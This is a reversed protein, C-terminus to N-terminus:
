WRILTLFDLVIIDVAAPALWVEVGAPPLLCTVHTHILQSKHRMNAAHRRRATQGGLVFAWILVPELLM